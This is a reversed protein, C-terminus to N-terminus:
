NYSSIIILLHPNIPAHLLLIVTAHGRHPLPPGGCQLRKTSIRCYITAKSPLTRSSRGYRAGLCRDPGAPLCRVHYTLCVDLCPAFVSIGHLPSGRANPRYRCRSPPLVVTGLPTHPRSATQRATEVGVSRQVM